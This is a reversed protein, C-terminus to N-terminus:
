RLNKYVIKKFDSYQKKNIDLEKIETASNFIEKLEKRLDELNQNKLISSFKNFDIQDTNYLLSFIDLADKQGKLSGKRQTYAFLKLILLVEKSPLKFGELSIASEMILNLPLGLESWFSLYIDVDFSDFKIEYKKLRENKIVDFNVKLRGLTETDVVMDIDKSKLNKTYLFVAWGGILVFNYEKRFAQLIYFSQDTILDHWFEM